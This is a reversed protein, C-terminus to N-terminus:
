VADKLFMEVQIPKPGTRRVRKRKPRNVDTSQIIPGNALEKVAEPNDSLPEFIEDRRARVEDVTVGYTEAIAKLTCGRWLDHDIGGRM